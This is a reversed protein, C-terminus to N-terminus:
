RTRKEEKREAEMEDEGSREEFWGGKRFLRLYYDRLSSGTGVAPDDTYVAPGSEPAPLSRAQEATLTTFVCREFINEIDDADVFRVGGETKVV